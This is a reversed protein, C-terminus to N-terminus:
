ARVLNSSWYYQRSACCFIGVLPWLFVGRGCESRGGAILSYQVRCFTVPLLDREVRGFRYGAATLGRRLRGSSLLAGAARVVHSLNGTDRAAPVSRASSRANESEARNLSKACIEGISDDNR